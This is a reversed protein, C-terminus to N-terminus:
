STKSAPGFNIQLNSPAFFRSRPHQTRAKKIALQPFNVPPSQLNAFFLILDIIPNPRALNSHNVLVVIL